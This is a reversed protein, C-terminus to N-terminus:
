TAIKPTGRESRLIVTHTRSLGYPQSEELTLINQLTLIVAFHTLINQLTLIVLAKQVKQALVFKSVVVINKKYFTKLAPLM